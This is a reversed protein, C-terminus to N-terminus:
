QSQTNLGSMIEDVKDSIYNPVVNFKLIDLYHLYDNEIHYTEDIFKYWGDDFPTLRIKDEAIECIARFLQVKLYANTERIYLARIGSLSYTNIKIQEYDFDAIYEKIKGTGRAIEEESMEAYTGNSLKRRIDSAHVLSSLIEYAEGWAGQCGNLECLKRLFAIRSVINVESKKAIDAYEKTIICVDNEPQIICEKVVGGQNWIFSSIANEDSMKGVVIFDTIPEFDHTLLLVTKNLLSFQQKGMNKFMRHLIAYKKNSDFSSVPDDLIILDANQMHAYYMFLILAFANKEGWSLHEKINKVDSKEDSFCQKLIARSNTEDEARIELEYNIGATRLFANIDMQSANVTALLLGKLEGMERKLSAVEGKFQIVKDNIRTFISNIKEGGFIEFLASPIEMHLIQQEVASIDAMMINRRGFDSITNFRSILLDLESTLKEVVMKIVDDPTDSKIYGVIEKYKEESMYDQLEQILELVEKLNQSDKKTYTKKFVDRKQVHTEQLTESCYPCCERSDFADGKNVWDIWAINNETNEIFPRYSELEVPINYINQKSLLSKLAGTNSLKGTATRGFKGNIAILKNKLDVIEQEEVVIERLAKLHEDLLRKKEEYNPTKLFVEFSNEIVEDEVFVVQSIFEENFVLIKSFHPTVDITAPDQSYYSQLLPLKDKELSYKIAKAITTKGTGNIGYKINLKNPEICITGKRINNCNLININYM